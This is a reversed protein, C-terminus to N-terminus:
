GVWKHCPLLLRYPPITIKTTPFCNYVTLRGASSTNLKLSFSSFCFKFYIKRFIDELAWLWVMMALTKWWFLNCGLYLTTSILRQFCKDSTNPGNAAKVNTVKLCKQPSPLVTKYRPIVPRIQECKKINQRSKGKDKDCYKNKDSGPEIM